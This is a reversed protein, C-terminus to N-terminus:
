LGGESHNLIISRPVVQDPTLLVEGHRITIDRKEGPLLDFYEDSLQIKEDLGFHVAHAFVGSSVTCRILGAEIAQINSVQVHPEPLRRNRFVESHLVAPQIESFESVTKVFICAESLTYSPKTWQLVVERSFPSLEVDVVSAENGDGDYYVYGYSLTERIVSSTENIATLQIVGDQERLILKVPALARKVFYYSIKRTLYYDIISWGVEGWCDNYMWFLAGSCFLKSRIAELSYGLMVGQCLGAYLLYDDIGLHATGVYHKHIGALVTEKEFINTHLQWLKSDLEMQQGHHYIETSGNRCPGIYGYESVFKAKVKDYEEPTVRKEMDAHMMCDNWHHTDGAQTGNPHEGGYPSSNWYPISPCNQQVIRPAIDNYCAAGGYFAAAETENWWEEFGWHNENNGCWLALACHNRLRRTQYDMEREVEDRFWTLHDPYKACTFMFDHWILIGYEDCKNYFIDKEYIGGGWVRLMNFNAEKAESLLAEYTADTVRAYISDAPIWNGGKSFLAVGNIEFTFSREDQSEPIKNMNLNLTRIGVSFTPYTVLHTTTQLTAQITYLPQEGMGNPWWLKAEPVVMPIKVYNLGSRLCCDKQIILLSTGQFLLELRLETELTQFPHLNELELQFQVHAARSATDLSTTTVGIDRIQFGHGFEISVEGMIGCTAVRPGWDWGFVYQPKRLMGRRHDGRHGIQENEYVVKAERILALDNESYHELGTTVRVFLQNVGQKVKGKVDCAFPYFASRHHGLHCDNLWIDAEVDLSEFRLIIQDTLLQEDTLMFSKKFWWSRDEMWESAFCQDAILPEAIIGLAILPMHVDCPLDSMLWNQQKNKVQIYDAAQRYLPEWTLQWDENLLLKM